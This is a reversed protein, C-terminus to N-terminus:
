LIILFIVRVKFTISYEYLNILSDKYQINLIYESSLLEINKRLLRIILNLIFSDDFILDFNIMKLFFFSNAMIDMSNSYAINQEKKNEYQIEKDYISIEASNLEYLSKDILNSIMVDDEYYM